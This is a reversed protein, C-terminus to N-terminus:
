ITPLKRLHTISHTGTWKRQVSWELFGANEVPEQWVHTCFGDRFKHPGVWSDARWIHTKLGTRWRGATRVLVSWSFKYQPVEQDTNRNVFMGLMGGRYIDYLWHDDPCLYTYHRMTDLAWILQLCHSSFKWCKLIASYQPEPTNNVALGVRFLDGGVSVSM